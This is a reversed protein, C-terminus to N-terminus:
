LCNKQRLDWFRFLCSLIVQSGKQVKPIQERLLQEFFTSSISVQCWFIIVYFGSKRLKERAMLTQICLKEIGLKQFYDFLLDRAPLSILDTQQQQQKQWWIGNAVFFFSILRLIESKTKMRKIGRYAVEFYPLNKWKLMKSINPDKVIKVTGSFCINL